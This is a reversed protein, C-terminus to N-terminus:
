VKSAISMMFPYEEEFSACRECVKEGGKYSYACKCTLCVQLDHEVLVHARDFAIDLWDFPTEVSRIAHPKCIDECIGCGICKGLQFLIKTKTENYSLAQTPCFQVCEKCNTCEKHSITKPHVWSLPKDIKTHQQTLLHRKLAKKFRERLFTQSAHEAMAEQKQSSPVRWRTFFERRKNHSKAADFCTHIRAEMGLLAVLRNAEDISKKIFESCKGEQNLSCEICESLNCTFSKGTELLCIAWDYFSFVALCPLQEKCTFWVTTENKIKDVLTSTDISFLSLAHTPCSGVCAGCQTCTQLNLRLKGQVFVFGESPCIDQCLRCQNPAYDNRLCMLRDFHLLGVRDIYYAKDM